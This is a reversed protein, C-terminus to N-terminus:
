LSRLTKFSGVLEEDDDAYNCAERANRYFHTEIGIVKYIQTLCEVFENSPTQSDKGVKTPIDTYFETIARLRKAIRKTRAKGGLQRAASLHEGYFDELDCVLKAFPESGGKLSKKLLTSAPSPLAVAINVARDRWEHAEEPKSYKLQESKKLWRRAKGLVQVVDSTQGIGYGKGIDCWLPDEAYNFLLIGPLLRQDDSLDLNLHEELCDAIRELMRVYYLQFNDQNYHSVRPDLGKYLEDASQPWM